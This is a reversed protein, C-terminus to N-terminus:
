EKTKQAVHRPSTSADGVSPYSPPPPDGMYVGGLNQFFQLFSNKLKKHWAMQIVHMPPPKVVSNVPM